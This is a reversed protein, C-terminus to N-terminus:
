KKLKKRKNEKMFSTVNKNAKSHTPDISYAGKDYIATFRPDQPNPKFNDDTEDQGFMFDLEEKTAAKKSVIDELKVKHKKKTGETPKEFMTEKDLEKKEKEQLKKERRKQKRKMQYNEFATANKM